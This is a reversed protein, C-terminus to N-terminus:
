QVTTLTGRFPELAGLNDQMFYCERIIGSSTTYTTIMCMDAAKVWRASGDAFVENGGAPLAGKKHAPLDRDGSALTVTSNPVSWTGNVKRIFDAALMWSPKSTTLKVPSAATVTGARDNYWNTLGGLYMYGLTWDPTNFSALNPRNPCSWVNPGTSVGTAADVTPLKLGYSAWIAISANDIRIFNRQDTMPVVKEQNDGAYMIDALGIQKLNSLCQTRKAKEKASALAPLLMAALIAIIAIVVLLEILTFGSQEKVSTNMQDLKRM